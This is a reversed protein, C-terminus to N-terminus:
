KANVAPRKLVGRAISAKLFKPVRKIDRISFNYLGFPIVSMVIFPQGFSQFLTAILVYIILGAIIMAKILSERSDIMDKQEGGVSYEVGPYGLLIEDLWKLLTTNVEDSTTMEPDIDGIVKVTRKGDTRLISLLGKGKSLHALRLIPVRDGRTNTVFLKKFTEDRMESEPLKVVVEIDEDEEVRKIETVIEGSYAARVVSAIERVSLGARTAEERIIEVRLEEKGEDLDDRVAYVGPIEKLYTQVRHSIENLEEFSEASFNIEVPKGTPPGARRRNIEISEVNRIGEIEERISNVIEDGTRKRKGTTDLIIRTQGVHTGRKEQGEEGSIGVRTIVSEMEHEPIQSVIKEVEEAARTTEELTAGVPLEYRVLFEDIGGPFSVFSLNKKAIFVSSFFLIALFLISM